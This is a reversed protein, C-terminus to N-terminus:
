SRPVHRLESRTKGLAAFASFLVPAFIVATTDLPNSPVVAPPLRTLIRGSQISPARTDQAVLSDRAVGWTQREGAVTRLNTCTSKPSLGVQLM